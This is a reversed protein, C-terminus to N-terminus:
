LHISFYIYKTFSQVAQGICSGFLTPSNKLLRTSIQDLGIANNPKLKTLQKHVYLEEVLQFSFSALNHNFEQVLLNHAISTLSSKFKTVLTTGVSAFYGNFVEATSKTSTYRVSDSEICNVSSDM